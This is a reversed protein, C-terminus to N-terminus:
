VHGNVGPGFYSSSARMDRTHENYIDDCARRGVGGESERYIATAPQKIGLANRKLVDTDFADLDINAQQASRGAAPASFELM